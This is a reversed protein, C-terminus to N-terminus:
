RHAPRATTTRSWSTSRTAISCRRRAAHRRRRKRARRRRLSSCRSTRWSTPRSRMSTSCSRRCTPSSDDQVGRDAARDRHPRHRSGAQAGRRATGAGAAATARLTEELDKELEEIATQVEQQREAPWANFEAPPVVQGDKMPAMAFGMPTRLIAIGKATAKERLATFARENGRRPDGARHRRPAEPLGRERVGGAAVVKLDDILRDLAKDLAPARGPPLAIAVPRHPTTFNNVYVWDSPSRGSPRPTKWCRGCRDRSTRAMRGSPSSTSAACRWRPASASRRMRVRSISWGTWRRWNGRRRSAAAGCPRGHRYLREPPLPTPPESSPM